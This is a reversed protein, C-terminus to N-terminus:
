LESLPKAHQPDLHAPMAVQNGYQAIRGGDRRTLVNLGAASPFVVAVMAPLKTGAKQAYRRWGGCRPAITASSDAGALAQYAQPDFKVQAESITPSAILAALAAFPLISTM